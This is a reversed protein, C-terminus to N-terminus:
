NFELEPPYIKNISKVFINLVLLDDIYRFTKSFKRAAALDKRILDKM